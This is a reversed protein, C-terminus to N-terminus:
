FKYQVQVSAGGGDRKGAYGTAAFDLSLNRSATPRVRAGLSLLGTGGKVSPAEIKYSGYTSAKAEGDFEREYGLGAKLTVAPSYRHALEANLRLRQSDVREFHLPDGAVTVHKGGVRSGLYKASLDLTQDTTLPLEYGVGLHASVYRSHLRYRAFEGSALNQLDGTDFSLRTRGARLSAETYFGSAFAYRGLLGAGYYRAHGDGDVSAANYFSNHSDYNGWGGEIFAGATFAEQRVGLGAALFQDNSTVHSGSDYRSRSAAALAFSAAGSGSAQAAIADFAEGAIHDAGRTVLM